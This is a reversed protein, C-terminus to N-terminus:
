GELLTLGPALIVCIPQELDAKAASHGRDEGSKSGPARVGSDVARGKIPGGRIEDASWRGNRAVWLGLDVGGSQEAAGVERPRQLGAVGDGGLGQVAGCSFRRAGLSSGL